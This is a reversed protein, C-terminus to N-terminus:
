WKNGDVNKMIDWNALSESPVGVYMVNACDEEM